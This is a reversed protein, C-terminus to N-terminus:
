KRGTIKEYWLRHHTRAWSAPVTGGVMGASSGPTGWISMYVHLIFAAVTVLATVSHIFVTLPLVWHLNSPMREPFWMILGTIVLIGASYFMAWYFQKQGANFRGQAPMASDRNELYSKINATWQKDAPIAAMDSKWKNHMWLITATYILGVWPHLFRVTGGGGFVTGVWYLYPTFLALGTLLLYTYAMGNIWHCARESFDYRVVTPESSGTKPQAMAGSSM